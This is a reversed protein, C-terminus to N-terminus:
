RNLTFWGATIDIIKKTMLFQLHIIMGEQVAEENIKVALGGKSIDV